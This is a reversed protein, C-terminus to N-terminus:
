RNNAPELTTRIRTAGPYRRMADELCNALDAALQRARPSVTEDDALTKLADRLDAPAAQRSAEGALVLTRLRGGLLDNLALDLELHAGLNATPGNVSATVGPM